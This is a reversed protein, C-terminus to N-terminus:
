IGWVGDKCLKELKIETIQNSLDEKSRTYGRIYSGTLGSWIGNSKKEWLVLVTKGLFRKRYKCSSEEALALMRQTRLKKVAASIQGKMKAAETGPRPSFPFVHIRSFDMMKCFNYSEEFESESEGPFGVIIDTTVAAEPVISRILAIAKRYDNASYRRKMGILVSESGSQLSLHLHPCLRQNSWLAMFHTTIHHPQVSSLRLRKVDTKSLIEEVLGVLNIGNFRYSGIETGTIVVEKYGYSLKRGVQALVQEPPLSVERGRVM